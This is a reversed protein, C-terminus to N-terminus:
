GFLRSGPQTCFHGSAKANKKLDTLTLILGMRLRAEEDIFASSSRLLLPFIFDMGGDCLDHILMRQVLKLEEAEWDVVVIGLSEM